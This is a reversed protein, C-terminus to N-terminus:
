KWIELFNEPKNQYEAKANEFYYLKFFEIKAIFRGMLKGKYVWM